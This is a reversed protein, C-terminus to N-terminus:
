QKQEHISGEEGKIAAKILDVYDCMLNKINSAQEIRDQERWYLAKALWQSLLNIHRHILWKENLKLVKTRHHLWMSACYRMQTRAHTM